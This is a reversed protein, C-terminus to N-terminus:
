VGSEGEVYLLTSTCFYEDLLEVAARSGNCSADAFIIGQTRHTRHM